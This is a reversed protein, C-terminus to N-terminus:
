ELFVIGKYEVLLDVEGLLDAGFLDEFFLSVRGFTCFKVDLNLLIVILLLWGIFEWGM